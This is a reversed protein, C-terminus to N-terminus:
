ALPKAKRRAVDATLEEIFVTAASSLVRGKKIGIALKGRLRADSLPIAVLHAEDQPDIDIQFCLGQGTAVIRKMVAVSNSTVVPRLSLSIQEAAANLLQRGGLSEDGLLMPYGVCDSLRLSPNAALPHGRAMIVHLPVATEAVVKFGQEPPPNFVYGIDAQERVVASVVENSGLVQCDFSIRPHNRQFASM